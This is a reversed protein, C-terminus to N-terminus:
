DQAPPKSPKISGGLAISKIVFMVKLFIEVSEATLYIWKCPGENINRSLKFKISKGIQDYATSFVNSISFETNAM